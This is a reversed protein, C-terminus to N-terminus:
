KIVKYKMFLTSANLKRVELLRLDVELHSSLLDIGKGLTVPEITLWLEDVLKEKLFLAFIEAGGAIMVSKFGKRALNRLIKVPELNTFEVQSTSKEKQAKRTLVVYHIGPRLKPLTKFTNHGLIMVGVDKMTKVFLEKDEQSTWDLPSRESRNIKGDISVVAMM